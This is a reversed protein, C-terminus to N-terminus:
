GLQKGVRFNLGCRPCKVFKDPTVALRRSAEADEARCKQVREVREDVEERSIRRAGRRSVFQLTRGRYPEYRFWGMTQAAVFMTKFDSDACPFLRIADCDNMTLRVEMGSGLMRLIRSMQANTLKVHSVGKTLVKRSPKRTRGKTTIAVVADSEEPWNNCKVRTKM